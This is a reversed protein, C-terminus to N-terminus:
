RARGRGRGRKQAGARGGRGGASRKDGRKEQVLVQKGDVFIPQAQLAKSVFAPDKSSVFGFLRQPTAGNILCNSVVGYAKFAQELKAPTAGAPLNGVYLHFEKGAAEKGSGKYSSPKSASAEAKAPQNQQGRKNSSTSSPGPAAKAQGNAVADTNRLIGAYTTAKTEQPAPKSAGRAAQKGSAASKGNEVPASKTTEKSPAPAPSAKPEPVRPSTKEVPAPAAKAVPEAVPTPAAPEPSAPAPDATGNEQAPTTKATAPSEEQGAKTSVPRVEAANPPSAQLIYFIDNHIYYNDADDANPALYFTEMFRRRVHEKQNVPQWTGTVMVVVGGAVSDQCCVVSLVRVFGTRQASFHKRIAEAGSITEDKANGEWGFTFRSDRAYLKYLELPEHNFVKYYHQVFCGGVMSAEAM